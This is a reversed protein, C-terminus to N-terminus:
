SFSSRKKKSYKRLIGMEQLKQTDWLESTPHENHFWAWKIKSDETLFRGKVEIWINKEPLYFDPIYYSQKGKPTTLVSRPLYFRQSHFLFDIKNENFYRIVKLEYGSQYLLKYGTKWHIIYGRLFKNTQKEDILTGRVVREPKQWFEGYDKDVFRCPIGYKVYTTEDLIVNDGHVKKLREKVSEISHRQKLGGTICGRKDHAHGMLIDNPKCWWEGYDKDIFKAKKNTGIYTLEDISLIDGHLEKMKSIVENIPRRQKIHLEDVARRNHGVGRMVAVAKTWWEGYDKDIFRSKTYSNKYTSEDLVIKDQHIDLIRQKVQEITLRKTNAM